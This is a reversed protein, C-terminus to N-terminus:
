FIRDERGAAEAQELNFHAGGNLVQSVYATQCPIAAALSKRFGRPRSQDVSLIFAKYDSYDFISAPKSM